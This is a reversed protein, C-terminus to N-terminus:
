KGGESASVALLAAKFDCKKEQMYAIAKDNLKKSDEDVEGYTSFDRKLGGSLPEPKEEAKIKSLETFLSTNAPANSLIQEFWRLATLTKEDKEGFKAETKDDLGYMFQKLGGVVLAPVIKGAKVLDELFLDILHERSKKTNEEFDKQMKDRDSKAKEGEKLKEDFEKRLLIEKEKVEHDLIARHNEETYVKDTMSDEELLKSLSDIEEKAQKVEVGFKKAAVKIRAKILGLDAPSYQTANKPINIYTWAARVHDYTDIPYKKNKPDAYLVNGYEGVARQKDAQSVDQRQAIFLADDGDSPEGLIEKTIEFESEGIDLFAFKGWKDEFAPDPMGKVQPPEAGLFALARLALGKGEFNDYLEISRKIFEKGKVKQIFDQTMNKLQALLRNGDRWVKAVWAKAGGSDEHGLKVPPTHYAPNFNAVITDLDARTYPEERQPYQGVKFIEM